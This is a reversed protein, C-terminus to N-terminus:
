EDEYPVSYVGLESGVLAKGFTEQAENQLRILEEEGYRPSIHVLIARRAGARRALRAADVATLHGKIEAHHPMKRWSCAKWSPLIWMGVFGM